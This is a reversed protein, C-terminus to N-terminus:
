RNHCCVLLVACIKHATVKTLFQANLVVSLQVKLTSPLDKLIKQEDVTQMRTLVYEYYRAVAVPPALPPNPTSFDFSTCRPTQRESHQEHPM